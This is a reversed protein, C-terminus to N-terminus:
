LLNLDKKLYNKLGLISKEIFIFDRYILLINEKPAKINIVGDRDLLIIKKPTLYKRTIELRKFIELVITIIM